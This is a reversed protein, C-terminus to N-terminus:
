EAAPLNKLVKGVEQAKQAQKAADQAMVAQQSAEINQNLKKMEEKIKEMEEQSLRKGGEEAGAEPAGVDIFQSSEATVISASFIVSPILILFLKASFANKLASLSM